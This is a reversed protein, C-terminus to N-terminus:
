RPPAQGDVSGGGALFRAASAFDLPYAGVMEVQRREPLVRQFKSLRYEPVASLLRRRTEPAEWFSAPRMEELVGLVADMSVGDGQIKLAFNDPVVKWDGQWELAYKLTQNTRGGAFTWWTIAAGDFQLAEGSRCLLPGLEGRWETLASRAEADLFAHEEDSTLVGKMAQCVELGLFQPM